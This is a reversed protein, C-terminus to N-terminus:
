IWLANDPTRLGHAFLTQDQERIAMAKAHKSRRYRGTLRYALDIHLTIGFFLANTPPGSGVFALPM